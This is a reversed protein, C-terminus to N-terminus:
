AAFTLPSPCHAFQFNCGRFTLFDSYGTFGIGIAISVSDWLNGQFLFIFQKQGSLPCQNTM